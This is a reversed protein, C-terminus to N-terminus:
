TLERGNKMYNQLSWVSTSSCSDKFNLLTKNIIEFTLLKSTLSFTM